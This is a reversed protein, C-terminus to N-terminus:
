NASRENAAVQMAKKGALLDDLRQRETEFKALADGSLAKGGPLRVKLPDVKTGNVILEYHLHPGTSEGSTGVWGIVQGQAVKAGTVVGKAIASQHNYSTVYGNPHRILTQNGYGGSDWGAKVVVGDGASLIPTGSPAAWDAGTHMRAFGLIPHRRMGFGSTFVGNPVPNRILFPRTSQGHEDYYDISRDTPDEFRYRRITRDGFRAGIYLLTSADSASGDADKVSFFTELTDSPKLQAQFDISSALLKVVSGTMEKTMGYYLSARYIGDYVSTLEEGDAPPQGTEDLSGSMALSTDPENGRVFLGADNRAVTLLHQHGRYLSARVIMKQAGTQLVGVRLIDGTSHTFGDFAASVQDSEDEGYGATRLTEAVDNRHTMAVVNEAFQSSTASLRQPLSTTMNEELIRATPRDSFDFDEADAFRRPDIYALNTVSDASGALLSGNTRVNEEAEEESLSAAMVLSAPNSFSTTKFTVQTEVDSGYLIDGDIHRETSSNSSAFISLPDFKPYDTSIPHNTALEMRLHAFPQRKVIQRDQDHSVTPVDIITRDAVKTILTTELVRGAKIATQMQSGSRAPGRLSLAEVPLTPSSYNHIAAFLALGMLISSTFGTLVTGVLWRISVERREVPRRGDASIPPTTGLSRLIRSHNAILTLVKWPQRAVSGSKRYRLPHCQISRASRASYTSRWRLDTCAFAM